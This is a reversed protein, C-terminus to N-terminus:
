LDAAVARLAGAADDVILEGHGPVIVSLDDLAALRELHGRLAGRDKVLLMRTTTTVRPRGSNGMLRGYVFWFLGSARHVNFLVDNFVLVTGKPDRVIMVGEVERLGDLHVLEVREGPIPADAYTHDVPVKQEVKKQSGAPCVIAAEPFRAKYRPADLRHFGNPVLIWRVRGLGTLWAMGAEDLAMASHLVLDGDELRVVTMARELAMGPTPAAGTVRWVHEGIEVPEGHPLVSWRTEDSAM